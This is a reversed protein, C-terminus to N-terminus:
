QLIKSPYNWNVIVLPTLSVNSDIWCKTSDSGTGGLGCQRTFINQLNILDNYTTDWFMNTIQKIKGETPTTPTNLLTIKGQIHLKHTFPGKNYGAILGNLIFNGKLYLWSTTWPTSPFWEGTFGQSIITDPLYLLWKDIFLDLSPSDAKMGWEL